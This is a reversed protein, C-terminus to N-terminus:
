FYMQTMSKQPKAVYVPIFKFQHIYLAALIYKPFLSVFCRGADFVHISMGEFNNLSNKVFIKNWCTTKFPSTKLILSHLFHVENICTSTNFLLVAWCYTNWFYYYQFFIMWKNILFRKTWKIVCNPKIDQKFDDTTFDSTQQHFLLLVLDCLM